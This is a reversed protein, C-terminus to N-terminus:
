YYTSDSIQELEIENNHKFNGVTMFKEGGNAIITDIIETWYYPSGFLTDIEIQPEVDFALIEQFDVLALESFYVGMSNIRYKSKAGMSVYYSVKYSSGSALEDTLEVEIYERAGSQEPEVLYYFSGVNFNGDFPEPVLINNIGGTGAGTCLSGLNVSTYYDSSWANPNFWDVVWEMATTVATNDCDEYEEFSPNPVLNEQARTNSILLMFFVLGLIIKLLNMFSKNKLNKNKKTKKLDTCPFLIKKLGL